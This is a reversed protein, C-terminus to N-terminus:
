RPVANQHQAIVGPVDVQKRAGAAEAGIGFHLLYPRFREREAEGNLSHDEFRYNHRAYGGNPRAAVYAAMAQAATPALDMGFHNYVQEVTAVPDSVLDLYHVHCISGDLSSDESAQIMRRAGDFWRISEQRGIAIPDVGRSFPRRLVETLKAVSLLVKVPDRHVFILRADPYVTRIADLAFLHDPCKLLWRSDAPRHFDQRQLHQLFRKHFRYAPLHGAIDTELWARYTPIHYTTDFRLSRFVHATIESCEQPSDANLPHLDRFEPAIWEFTRLQRAVQVRRRDAGRAPPYPHITQWVLPARNAPDELMMRHLFTTGSRPLGMIFIPQKISERGIMADRKEADRMQLLNSLFRVVDWKTAVRGIVSLDAETMCPELLQRLPTDLELDGFDRLGTRQQAIRILEDASLPQHLWGIQDALADALQLMITQIPM